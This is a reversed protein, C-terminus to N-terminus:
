RMEKAHSEIFEIENEDLGYKKYLQQNIEVVSKSWDIESNSTFDQLPVYKWMPKKGNHTVKLVGLMTRAFKTKAYKLIREAEEKHNCNGISIFTQTFGVGPGLVIPNALTEGLTGAGNNAPLVVKYSNLNSGEADLYDLKLYRYIRERGDYGLIKVDNGTDVEKFCVYNISGSTLRKERGGSSIESKLEPFDKYLADLNFKNQNFMISTLSPERKALVKNLIGNLQEDSTFTGIAGFVQSADRYHIAVGGKFGVTPFVAKANPEYYLVKFHEDALMKKNWTSSTNGNNFLFRAPTILETKDAVKYSEDMFYNFIAEDSIKDGAAAEQYPPNGIVAYFKKMPAENKLSAFVVPKKDKWDYIVCLPVTEKVEAEPEEIPIDFLEFLTMQQPEPEPTDLEFLSPQAPEANTLTPLACTLGDMQWFNWSIIEAAEAYLEESPWTGHKDKHNQAFTELVNIRAIVLNDGQYEYGYTAKLAELAWTCWEDFDKAREGVVRLKRDLFGIRKELPLERGSVTDYRSCVFPAEGCTIELRTSKVYDKWSFGKARPFVVKKPNPKWNMGDQFTFVDKRGFWQEDLYNNMQNCLWSPTFVEAHTKTREARKEHEKAIRPKIVGSHMGTIRELTIEDTAAYGSGLSEYERDAWIINHGTTRNILLTKLTAESYHQEATEIFGAAYDEVELDAASLEVDVLEESEIKLKSKTKTAAM